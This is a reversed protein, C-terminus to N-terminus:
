SYRDLSLKTCNADSVEIDEKKKGTDINQSKGDRRTIYSNTFSNSVITGPALGFEKRLQM